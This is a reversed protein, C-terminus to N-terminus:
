AYRREIPYNDLLVPRRDMLNLLRIKLFDYEQKSNVVELLQLILKIRSERLNNNEM